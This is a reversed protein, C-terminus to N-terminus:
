QNTLKQILEIKKAQMDDLVMTRFSPNPVTETTMQLFAKDMVSPMDHNVLMEVQTYTLLSRYAELTATSWDTVGPNALENNTAVLEQQIIQQISAQSKWEFGGATAVGGAISSSSQAQLSSYLATSLVLALFLYLRSLLRFSKKFAISQPYFKSMKM